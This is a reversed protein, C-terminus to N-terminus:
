VSILINMSPKDDDDDEDDLKTEEVTAFGTDTEAQTTEHKLQGKRAQMLLHIM